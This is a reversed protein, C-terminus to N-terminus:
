DSIQKAGCADDVRVAVQGTADVVRRLRTDLGFGDLGDLLAILVGVALLRGVLGCLIVLRPAEDDLFLPRVEHLVMQPDKPRVVELGLVRLLVWLEVVEEPIGGLFGSDCLFRLVWALALLQEVQDALDVLNEPLCLLGGLVVVSTERLFAVQEYGRSLRVHTRYSPSASGGHGELDRTFLWLLSSSMWPM